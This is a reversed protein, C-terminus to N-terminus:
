IFPHSAEDAADADADRLATLLGRVAIARVGEEASTSALVLDLAASKKDGAASGFVVSLSIIVQEVGEQAGEGADRTLIEAATRLASPHRQKISVLLARVHEQEEQVASALLLAALPTLIFDPM